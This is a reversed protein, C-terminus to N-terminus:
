NWIILESLFVICISAMSLIILQPFLNGGKCMNISSINFHHTSAIVFLYCGFSLCARALAVIYLVASSVNM